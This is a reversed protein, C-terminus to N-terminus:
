LVLIIKNIFHNLEYYSLLKLKYNYVINLTYFKCKQYFFLYYFVTETKMSVSMYFLVM